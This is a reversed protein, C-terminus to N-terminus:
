GFSAAMQAEHRHAAQRHERPTIGFREKFARGFHSQDFFGCGAAIASIPEDLGALREAAAALRLRRVFEGVTCGKHQRFARALHTYHVGAEEALRRLPPAAEPEERLREVVRRLWPAAPAAGAAPGTIEAELEACLSDIALRTSEDGSELEHLIRTAISPALTSNLEPAPALRSRDLAEFRAPKMALHLIRAGQPGTEASHLTQPPTCRVAGAGGPLERGGCTECNAGAVILRVGLFDHAHRPLALGAPYDILALLWGENEFSRVRYVGHTELLEHCSCRGM